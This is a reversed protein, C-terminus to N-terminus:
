SRGGAKAQGFKVVSSGNIVLDPSGCVVASLAQCRPLFSNVLQAAATGLRIGGFDVKTMTAELTVPKSTMHMNGGFTFKSLTPIAKTRFVRSLAIVGDLKVDAGNGTRKITSMLENCSIDLSTLSSNYMLCNSLVLAGEVGLSRGALDLETVANDRLDKVPVACLVHLSDMTIFDQMKGESIGNCGVHLSTLTPHDNLESSLLIACGDGLGGNSLDLETEDGKIGCLTTLTTHSEMARILEQVQEPPFKNGLLNLSTVTHNSCIAPLLIGLCEADLNNRALSLEVITSNNQLAFAVARVGPEGYCGAIHNDSLNLKTLTCYDRLENFLLVMCGEGLSKKSLDLESEDGRLGCLTRLTGHSDMAQVLQLAQENPIFNALLNM